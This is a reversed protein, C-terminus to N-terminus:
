VEEDPAHLLKWKELDTLRLGHQGLIDEVQEVMFKELYHVREELEMIRKDQPTVIVIEGSDSLTLEKTFTMKALKSVTLRFKLINPKVASRLKQESIIYLWPGIGDISLCWTDKNGTTTRVSLQIIEQQLDTRAQLVEAQRTVGSVGIITCLQRLVFYVQGKYILITLECDWDQLYVTLQKDPIPVLM